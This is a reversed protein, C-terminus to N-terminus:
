KNGGFKEELYEDLSKEQAISLKNKDRLSILKTIQRNMIYESPQWRNALEMAMDYDDININGVNYKSGYLSTTISTYINAIYCNYFLIYKYGSKDKGVLLKIRAHCRDKFKQLRGEIDNKLVYTMKTLKTNTETQNSLEIKVSELENKLLQSDNALVEFQSKLIDIEKGVQNVAKDSVEIIMDNMSGIILNTKKAYEEVNFEM